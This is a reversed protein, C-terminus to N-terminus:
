TFAAPTEQLTGPWTVSVHLRRTCRQAVFPLKDRCSGAQKAERTGGGQRGGERGGDGVRVKVRGKVSEVERGTERERGRERALSPESVAQVRLWPVPQVRCLDCPSPHAKTVHVCHQELEALRTEDLWGCQWWWGCCGCHTQPQPASALCSIGNTIMLLLCIFFGTHEPTKETQTIQAFTSPRPQNLLHVRNCQQCPGFPFQSTPPTLPHTTNCEM